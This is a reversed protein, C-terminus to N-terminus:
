KNKNTETKLIWNKVKTVLWSALFAPHVWLLYSSQLNLQKLQDRRFDGLPIGM